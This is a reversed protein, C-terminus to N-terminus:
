ELYSIANLADGGAGAIATEIAIQFGPAFILKCRRAGLPTPWNELGISDGAVGHRSM